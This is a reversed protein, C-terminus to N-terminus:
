KFVERLRILEPEELEAYCGDLMAIDVAKRGAAKLKENEAKMQKIESEYRRIDAELLLVRDELWDGHTYNEYKGYWVM